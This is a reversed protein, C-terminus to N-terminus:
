EYQGVKYETKYDVDYHQYTLDEDGNLEIADEDAICDIVNDKDVDKDVDEDEDEDAICDDDMMTMTM